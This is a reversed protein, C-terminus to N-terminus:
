KRLPRREASELPPSGGPDKSREKLGSNKRWRRYLLRNLPWRNLGYVDLIWGKMVEVPSPSRQRKFFNIGLTSSLVVLDTLLDRQLGWPDERLAKLYREQPFDSTLAYLKWVGAPFKLVTLRRQFGVRAGSELCRRLFEQDDGVIGPPTSWPGIKEMLNKRHLWNSPSLHRKRDWPKSPLTFSGSVGDPGIILGLSHVFDDGNREITKWLESLHWPFWLDDHGLYAVYKGKALRLGENRPRCPGGSNWPLNRWHVREDRFSVSVRESDDTCGDGIVWIEIDTFDQLLVSELALKLTGSSNFTPIIVTIQPSFSKSRM